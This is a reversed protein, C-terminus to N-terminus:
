AAASATVDPPEDGALRAWLGALQAESFVDGVTQNSRVKKAVARLFAAQLQNRRAREDYSDAAVVCETKSMTRLPKRTHEEGITFRADLWRDFAETNGTLHDNFAAAFAARGAVSRARGRSSADIRAIADRMISEAQPDLWGALLQPDRTRLDACIKSALTAANYPESGSTYEDILARVEAAYNRGDDAAM